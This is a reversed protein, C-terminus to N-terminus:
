EGFNRAGSRRQYRNVDSQKRSPRRAFKDDRDRSRSFGENVFDSSRGTRTNSKIANDIRDTSTQRAITLSTQSPSQRIGTAYLVVRRDVATPDFPGPLATEADIAVASGVGDNTTTFIGPAATMVRVTGKTQFGEANTVVVQAFGRAVGRPVHFAVRTASVTFIAAPLENVTVTTGNLAYPLAGDTLPVAQASSFALVSGTAVAISDPAIAKLSHPEHGQSAGNQVILDTFFPPRVETTALYIESNNAFSPSSVEASLVRPFNFVVLSGTDDLSSVVESTAASPANTVRATRATPLDYTYLEVSNDSNGGIVNRRTAFSIRKGDGSITPNLPVDVARPGLSTIQRVADHRGDYLFVQTTDPATKSSYVVRLGDDSIARGYTLSLEDVDSVLTRTEGATLDKIVLDRHTSRTLGRDFIYAIHSGNGSIKADTAGVIGITNTLQTFASIASDYLFIESNNDPNQGTLQRNSSFAIFRGDDSISPQFNGEFHRLEPESPTTNTVQRLQGSTYLFIESNGDLNTGLPNEKSAFAVSSGDQSVAPAVARTIGLEAFSPPDGALNARFARFGSVGGNSLLNATSEFVVVRGDGSIGPNLSLKEEPTNTIRRLPDTQLTRGDKLSVSIGIMLALLFVIAFFGCRLM